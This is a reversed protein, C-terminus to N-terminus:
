WADVAATQPVDRSAPKEYLGPFRAYDPVMSVDSGDSRVMTFSDAKVIFSEPAITSAALGFGSITGDAMQKLTLPSKAGVPVINQNCERLECYAVAKIQERWGRPNSQQEFKMKAHPCAACWPAKDQLGARTNEVSKRAIDMREPERAFNPFHGVVGFQRKDLRVGEPPRSPALDRMKMIADSLLQHIKSFERVFDESAVELTVGALGPLTTAM